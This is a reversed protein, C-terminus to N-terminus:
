PGCSCASVTHRAAYLHVLKQWRAYCHDFTVTIFHFHIHHNKILKKRRIFVNYM